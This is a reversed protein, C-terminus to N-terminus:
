SQSRVAAGPEPSGRLVKDNRTKRVEQVSASGKAANLKRLEDLIETLLELTALQRATQARLDIGDPWPERTMLVRQSAPPQFLNKFADVQDEPKLVPKTEM